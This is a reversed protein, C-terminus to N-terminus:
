VKSFVSLEMKKRRILQDSIYDPCRCLGAGGEAKEDRCAHNQVAPVADNQGQLGAKCCQGDGHNEREPEHQVSTNKWLRGGSLACPSYTKNRQEVM